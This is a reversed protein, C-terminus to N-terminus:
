FEIQIDEGRFNILPQFYQSLYQKESDLLVNERISKPILDIVNCNANAQQVQDIFNNILLLDKTKSSNILLWM